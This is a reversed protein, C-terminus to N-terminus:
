IRCRAITYSYGEYLLLMQTTDVYVPGPFSESIVWNAQDMSWLKEIQSQAKRDLSVWNQGSSYVWQVTAMTERTTTTTELTTITDFQHCSLFSNISFNAVM